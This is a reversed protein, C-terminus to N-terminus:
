CILINEDCYKVNKTKKMNSIVEKKDQITIEFYMLNCHAILPVQKKGCRRRQYSEREQIDCIPYYYFLFYNLNLHFQKRKYFSIKM